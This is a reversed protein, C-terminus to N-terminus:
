EVGGLHEPTFAELERQGEDTASAEEVRALEIPPDPAQPPCAAPDGDEPTDIVRDEEVRVTMRSEGHEGRQVLSVTKGDGLRETVVGRHDRAAVSSIPLADH